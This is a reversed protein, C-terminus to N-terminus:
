IPCGFCGLKAVKLYATNTVPLPFGNAAMQNQSTFTATAGGSDPVLKGTGKLVAYVACAGTSEDCHPYMTIETSSPNDSKYCKGADDCVCMSTCGSMMVTGAASKGDKTPVAPTRGDYYIFPGGVTPCMGLIDAKGYGKNDVFTGGAVQIGAFNNTNDCTFSLPPVVPPCTPDPEPTCTRLIRDPKKKCLLKTLTATKTASWATSFEVIDNTQINKPESTAWNLYDLISGDSWGFSRTSTNAPITLGILFNGFNTKIYDNEDKCHISVAHSRPWTQECLNTVGIINKKNAPLPSIERYCFWRGCSKHAIWESPCVPKDHCIDCIVTHLLIFFPIFCSWHM